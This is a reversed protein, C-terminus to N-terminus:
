RGTVKRGVTKRETTRGETTRGETTRGLLSSRSEFYLVVPAGVYISSYTGTIIGVILAFAFPRIVYGGLIFLAFLVLLTSIGTVITRSLTENISRNITTALSERRFKRMNERVRDFIVIKDNVSYGVLTLIAALVTLDFPMQTLTLAGTVVLVDHILAIIAGIGFRLDFRLAIYVGMLLTVFIAALFGKRRLDGSVKSGVSEARLVEVTQGFTSALAAQVTNSVDSLNVSSQKFRLMFIKSDRGIDQIILDELDQDKVAQTIAGSTTPQSFRVEIMVGGAFDLGYNLGWTLMLGISLLNIALSFLVFFFRKGIFDVNTDYPILEM